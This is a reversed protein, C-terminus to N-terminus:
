RPLIHDYLYQAGFTGSDTEDLLPALQEWLTETANALTAGEPLSTVLEVAFENIDCWDALQIGYRAKITREYRDYNEQMWKELEETDEISHQTEYIYGDQDAMLYGLYVTAEVTVTQDANRFLDLHAIHGDNVWVYTQEQDGLIEGLTTTDTM